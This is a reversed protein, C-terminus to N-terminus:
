SVEVNKISTDKVKIRYESSAGYGSDFASGFNLNMGIQEKGLEKIINEIDDDEHVDMELSLNFTLETNITKRVCQSKRLQEELKQKKVKLIEQQTNEPLKGLFDAVSMSVKELYSDFILNIDKLEELLIDIQSDLNTNM